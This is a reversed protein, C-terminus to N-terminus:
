SLKGPSEVNGASRGRFRYKQLFLINRCGRRPHFLRLFLFAGSGAYIGSEPAEYALQQRSDSFESVFFGPFFPTGAGEFESHLGKLENEEM